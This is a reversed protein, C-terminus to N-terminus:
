QNHDIEIHGQWGHSPTFHLGCDTSSLIHEWRPVNSLVSIDKPTYLGLPLWERKSAQLVLPVKRFDFGMMRTCVIDVAM